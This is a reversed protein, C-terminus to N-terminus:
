HFPSELSLQLTAPQAVNKTARYARCFRSTTVRWVMHCNFCRYHIYDDQQLCKATCQPCISRKYLWDRYTDLCDQIHEPDIAIALDTGVAHAKEWAAVELRVLEFDTRYDAHGLLAHGTEHLLSWQARRSGGGAKYFIEATEPSWCFQMGETFRLGPFRAQLKTILPQM